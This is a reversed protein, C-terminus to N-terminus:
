FDLCEPEIKFNNNEVKSKLIACRTELDPTQMDAMLGM